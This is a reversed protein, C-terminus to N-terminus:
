CSGRLLKRAIIERQIEASGAFITYARYTLHRRVPSWDLRSAEAADAGLGNEDEWRLAQAGALEVGLRAIQQRLTGSRLKLISAADSAGQDPAGGVVLRLETMELTDIDIQLAAIRSDFASIFGVAQALTNELLRRLRAAAFSGGREFELVYKACEWGAGEPGICNEVPVRVDDFFVQNMEHHGSISRIPHISIGQADMPVIVISLGEQKRKEISTRVLAFMRNAHHADSTWTKSGNIVYETGARSASTAVNALDSGAAPESYGQCWYDEGSLIRPLFQRQQAATGYRILLPGVHRIGQPFLAPADM